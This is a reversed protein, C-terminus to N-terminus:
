SLVAKNPDYMWGVVRAVYRWATGPATNTVVVELTRGGELIMHVDAPADIGGIAAPLFHYGELYDAGVKFSWQAFPMATPSMASFGAQRVALVLKEPVDISLVTASSAAAVQVPSETTLDVARASEPAFLWPPLKALQAGNPGAAFGEMSM